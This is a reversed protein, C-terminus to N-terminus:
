CGQSCGLQHATPSAITTLHHSYFHFLSFTNFDFNLVRIGIWSIQICTRSFSFWTVCCDVTHTVSAFCRFLKWSNRLLSPYYNLFTYFYFWKREREVEKWRHVGRTTDCQRVERSTAPGFCPSMIQFPLWMCWQLDKVKNFICWYDAM